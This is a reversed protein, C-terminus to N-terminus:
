PNDCVEKEVTAWFSPDKRFHLVYFPVQRCMGAVMRFAKEVSKAPLYRFFHIHNTLIRSCAEAPPIRELYVKSDKVLFFGADLQTSWIQKATGHAGTCATQDFPTPAIFYKSGRREVIVADDSIVEGKGSLNGLTTKGTGSVGLFLLGKDKRRIGIGHMMLGGLSPLAMSMTFYLAEYVTKLKSQLSLGPRFYLASHPPSWNRAVCGRFVPYFFSEGNNRNENLFSRLDPYKLYPRIRKMLRAMEEEVDDSFPFKELPKKIYERLQSEFDRCHREGIRFKFPVLEMSEHAKRGKQKVFSSFTEAVADGLGSSLKSLDLQLALKSIHMNLHDMTKFPKGTLAYKGIPAKATHRATSL